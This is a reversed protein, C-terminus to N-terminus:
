GNKTETVNARIEHSLKKIEMLTKRLRTGASKNKKDYFKVAEEKAVATLEELKEIKDM